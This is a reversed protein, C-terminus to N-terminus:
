RVARIDLAIDEVPKETVNDDVRCRVTV